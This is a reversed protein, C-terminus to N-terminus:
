EWRTQVNEYPLHPWCKVQQLLGRPPPQSSPHKRRPPNEAAVLQPQFRRSRKLLSQKQHLNLRSKRM